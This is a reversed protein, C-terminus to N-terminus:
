AEQEKEEAEARQETAIAIGMAIHEVTLMKHLTETRRSLASIEAYIHLLGGLALYNVDWTLVGWFTLGVAVWEMANAAFVDAQTSTKNKSGILPNTPFWYTLLQFVIMKIVM